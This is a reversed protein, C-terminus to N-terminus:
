VDFAGKVIKLYSAGRDKSEKVPKGYYQEYYRRYIKVNDPGIMEPWLIHQCVISRDVAITCKPDVQRAKMCFYIDETNTIGTVFYPKEIKKLLSTKILCLSFGVADVPAITPDKKKWERIPLLGQKDRTYRFAMHNFPYGRIMVDGAVIDKDAALLKGLWDLQPKLKVLEANPSLAVSSMIPVLVDDDIFLLYDFENNLTVEAAMNRMRDISMRPPNIFCFNIDPHNRGLRFFVQMHNSYAPQQSVTLSNIGIAITLQKKM